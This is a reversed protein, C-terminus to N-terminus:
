IAPLEIRTLGSTDGSTSPSRHHGWWATLTMLGWLEFGLNAEGDLHSRVNRSVADADLFPTEELRGKSLFADLAPRMENRLWAHIPISFGQKKAGSVEQPLRRSALERLFLKGARFPRLKEEDPLALGFEVVSPNLLPARLELGHGMTNRDVKTLIDNALYELIDAEQLARLSAKSSLGTRAILADLAAEASEGTGLNEAILSQAEEPLWAGNWSFHARQTPSGWGRLLRHLKYSTTVKGDGSKQRALITSAVHALPAPVFPRFRRYLATARYTLYGGYAEDGGDGSLAVKYDKSVEKALADVALASSDALPDDAQFVLREFGEPDLPAARARRLEIGLADAVTKASEWESFRGDEFDLCYAERVLGQRVASETVLSSDIGGSLLTTSPVDSRSAIAVSKDIRQSLEALAAEGRLPTKAAITGNSRPSWFREETKQGDHEVLLWSGASLREVGELLTQTGPVYNLMLHGALAVPNIEAVFDPFGTIAKLESAFVIDGGRKRWIYLPKEGIADRALYLSKEVRDAIAFAFMGVLRGAADTGFHRYAELVVETDSATKFLSGRAKLEERLEIYNYIEGNFTIVHRGSADAMPQTGGALDIISLRRHGFAFPPEQWYGGGDPGRHQLRNTAALVPDLYRAIAEGFVGVIGCM